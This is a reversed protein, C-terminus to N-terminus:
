GKVHDVAGPAISVDKRINLSELLLRAAAVRAGGSMDREKVIKFLEEEVKEVTVDLINDSM